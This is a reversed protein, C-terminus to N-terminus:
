SCPESWQHRWGCSRVHEYEEQDLFRVVDALAVCLELSNDVAGADDRGGVLDLAVGYELAIVQNFVALLLANVDSSVGYTDPKLIVGFIELASEIELSETVVHEVNGEEDSAGLDLFNGLGNGLASALCDGGGVDHLIMWM